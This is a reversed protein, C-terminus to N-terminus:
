LVLMRQGKKVKYGCYVTIVVFLKVGAQLHKTEYWPCLVFSNQRGTHGTQM